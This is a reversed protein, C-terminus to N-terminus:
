PPFLLTLLKVEPVSPLASFAVRPASPYPEVLLQTCVWWNKRCEIGRAFQPRIIPSTERRVCFSMRDGFFALCVDKESILARDNIFNKEIERFLM